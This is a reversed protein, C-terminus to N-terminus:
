RSVEHAPAHDAWNRDRPVTCPPVTPITVWLGHMMRYVPLDLAVREGYSAWRRAVQRYCGGASGVPSGNEWRQWHDGYPPRPDYEAWANPMEQGNQLHIM